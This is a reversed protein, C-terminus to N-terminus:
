RLLWPNLPRAYRRIEWLREAIMQIKPTILSSSASFDVTHSLRPAAFEHFLRM